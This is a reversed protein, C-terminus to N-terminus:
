AGVLKPTPASRFRRSIGVRGSGGRAQLQAGQIAAGPGQEPMQFLGGTGGLQALQEVAADFVQQILAMAPAPHPHIPGPALSHRAHAPHPVMGASAVIHLEAHVRPPLVQDPQGDLLKEVFGLLAKAVGLGKPQVAIDTVAAPLLPQTLLPGNFATFPHQHGAAHPPAVFLM